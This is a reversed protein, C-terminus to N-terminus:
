RRAEATSSSGLLADRICIAFRLPGRVSASSTSRRRWRQTRASMSHAANAVPDRHVCKWVRVYTHVCECVFQVDV